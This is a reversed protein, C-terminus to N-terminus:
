RAAPPACLLLLVTAVLASPRQARSLPSMATQSRWGRQQARGVLQPSATQPGAAEPGRPAAQLTDPRLGVGSCYLCRATACRQLMGNKLLGADQQARRPPALWAMTNAGTESAKLQMLMTQHAVIFDSLGDLNCHTTAPLPAM